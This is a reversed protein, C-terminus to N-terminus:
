YTLIIGPRDKIHLGILRNYQVNLQLGAWITTVVHGIPGSPGTTM